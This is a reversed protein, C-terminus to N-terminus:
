CGYRHDPDCPHFVEFAGPLPGVQWRDDTAVPQGYLELASTINQASTINFWGSSGVATTRQWRIVGLPTATCGFCGYIRGDPYYTPVAQKHILEGGAVAVEMGDVGMQRVTRRRGNINAQWTTQNGTAAQRKRYVTYLNSRGRPAVSLWACDQIVTPQTGGLPPALTEYYTYLKDDPPSYGCAGIFVRNTRGFGTQILYRLGYEASVRMVGANLYPLHFDNRRPTRIGARVGRIDEEELRLVVKGGFNNFRKAPPPPVDPPPLPPPIRCPEHGSVAGFCDTSSSTQPEPGLVPQPEAAPEPGISGTSTSGASTSAGHRNHAIVRASLTKGIDAVGVGYSQEVEGPIAVGDKLWQYTYGAIASACSSWSGHDVTLVGTAEAEGTLTPAVSNTPPGQVCGGSPAYPITVENSLATTSGATNTATVEARVLLGDEDATRAIAAEASDPVEFALGSAGRRTWLYSYTIDGGCSSGIWKGNTVTLTSGDASLSAAPPAGIRQPSYCLDDGYAREHSVALLMLATVGSACLFALGARM